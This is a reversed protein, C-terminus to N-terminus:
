APAEGAPEARAVLEGALTAFVAAFGFLAMFWPQWLSFSSAGALACAMFTAYHYPQVGAPQRDLSRLVLLGFALLFLVGVAGAEYWTQLYGSHAHLNTTRRFDTGPVPQPADFDGTESLARASGIGVGLLPAKPIQESTYGWIVIRHQASTPLWRALHLEGAYALSAIPAFLLTAVLWYATTARSALLPWFWAMAFVLGAGVFAVKSTGHSSRLIAAVVPLLGLLMWARQWPTAGLRLTVLVAPWFLLTLGLVCRNLLYPPLYDVVGAHMHMHRPPPRFYPVHTTLLRHMWQQTFAEFCLVVGCLVIGAYFGYSMARVAGADSAYLTNLNVHLAGIVIFLVTVSLYALDRSLSWSANILLYLGACALAVTVPSLPGPPLRGNKLWYLGMPVVASLVLLGPSLLPTMLLLAVGGATWGSLLLGPPWRPQTSPEANM